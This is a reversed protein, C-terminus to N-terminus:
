YYNARITIKYLKMQGEKDRYFDFHNSRTKGDTVEKINLEFLPFEEIRWMGKNFYLKAEKKDFEESYMGSLWDNTNYELKYKEKEQKNVIDLIKTAYEMYENVFPYAGMIIYDGLSGEEEINVVLNKDFYNQWTDDKTSPLFTHDVFHKFYEELQVFNYYMGNTGLYSKYYSGEIPKETIKLSFMDLSSSGPTDMNEILVEGKTNLLLTEGGVLINHVDGDHGINERTGDKLAYLMGNHVRSLDTYIAPVAIEGRDNYLGVQENEDSKFRIHNESEYDGAGVDYYYVNKSPVVLNRGKDRKIVYEVGLTSNVYKNKIRKSSEKVIPKQPYTDEVSRLIDQANTSPLGMFWFCIIALVKSKM